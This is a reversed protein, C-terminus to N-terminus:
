RNVNLNGKNNKGGGGKICFVCLVAEALSKKQNSEQKKRYELVPVPISFNKGEIGTSVFFKIKAYSM